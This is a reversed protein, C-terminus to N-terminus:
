IETDQRVSIVKVIIFAIVLVVIVGIAQKFKVEYYKREEEHTQILEKHSPVHERAMKEAERKVKEIYEEATRPEPQM